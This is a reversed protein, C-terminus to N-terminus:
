QEDESGLQSTRTEAGHPDAEKMLDLVKNLTSKLFAVEGREGLNVITQELDAAIEELKAALDESKEGYPFVPKDDITVNKVERMKYKCKVM